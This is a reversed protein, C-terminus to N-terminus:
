DVVSVAEPPVDAGPATSRLEVRPLRAGFGTLIEYEITGSLAALESLGIEEEGDRGLLTAVEGPEVPGADTVDVVTVDMCVRGVVPVRRGRVIAAGRNSLAHPLGDGYGVGLTALRTPRPATWTAGYSVTTGPSVERVDLVRARLAAVPEPAPVAGALLGPAGGYLYIGPRVLDGGLEPVLLSAASNAGHIRGPPLGHAEMREVARQFRAWQDRASELDEEASHFHTFTGALRLGGAELVAAVEPAWRNAEEAPVGARGMGTDVELHLPLVGGSPGAASAHQAYSRLATLSSVAPELGHRALAPADLEACPFFVVIRESIGAGRLEAGEDATAVGFGWPEQARLARAARLAGVGYAEAKVMPLLRAGAVREAVASANRVLAALDVELWARRTGARIGEM